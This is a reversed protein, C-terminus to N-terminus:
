TAEQEAEEPKFANLPFRRWTFEDPVRVWEYVMGGTVELRRGEVGPMFPVGNRSPARHDWDYGERLLASEDPFLEDHIHREHDALAFYAARAGVWPGSEERALVPDRSTSVHFRFGHSEVEDLLWFLLRRGSDTPVWKRAFLWDVGQRAVLEICALGPPDYLTYKKSRLGRTEVLTEFLVCRDAM